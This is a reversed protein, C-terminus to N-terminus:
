SEGTQKKTRSTSPRAQFPAPRKNTQIDPDLQFRVDKIEPLQPVSRIKRLLHEKPLRRLENMWGPHDAYLHLIGNKLFAPRTHLSLQEGAIVPWRETLLEPLPTAEPADTKFIGRLIESIRKEQRPQSPPFKEEIQFRERTLEWKLLKDDFPKM